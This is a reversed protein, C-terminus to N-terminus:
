GADAVRIYVALGKERWYVEYANANPQGKLEVATGYPISSIATGNQLFTLPNNLAADSYMLAGAANTIKVNGSIVSNVLNKTLTYLVRGDAYIKSWTSNYSMCYVKENADMYGYYYSNSAQPVTYVPLNAAVSYMDKDMTTFKTQESATFTAVDNLNIYAFVNKYYLYVRSGIVEIYATHEGPDIYGIRANTSENYINAGKPAYAVGSSGTSGGSDLLTIYASHVFGVKGHYDIRTWDGSIGTRAASAGGVLTGIVAYNTGPGTRVNLDTNARITGKAATVGPNTVENYPTLYGSHIYATKGNYSVQTWSGTIGTRTILGGKSLWGVISYNTGPGSRINVNATAQMTGSSPTSGGGTSGGGSGGSSTLYKTFMYATADNWKIISWNGVTGLVSVADGKNLTTLVKYGTGPGSRVNIRGTSYMTTGSASTGGAARLYSSHAYAKTNGLEIISWSGSTGIRTVTQGKKLEGIIPYNTGPGSRLNLATTASVQERAAAMAPAAMIALTAIALLLALLKTKKGYPSKM